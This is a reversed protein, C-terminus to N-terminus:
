QELAEIAHLLRPVSASAPGSDTEGDHLLQDLPGPSLNAGLAAIALGPDPEGHRGSRAAGATTWDDCSRWEFSVPWPSSSSRVASVRDSPAIGLLRSTDGIRSSEPASAASM